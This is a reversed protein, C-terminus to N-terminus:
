SETWEIYIDISAGALTVGNLNIAALQTAGRLVLPQGVADGFQWNITTLNALGSAAATVPVPFKEVRINGASAGLATPNASYQLLTATAAANNTDMSATTPTTSTGGTNAASRRILLVNSDTGGTSTGSISLRTIKITQSGSGAITFIDTALVAPALGLIAACYTEEKEDDAQVDVPFAPPTDVM